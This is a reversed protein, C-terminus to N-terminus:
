GLFPVQRGLKRCPRNGEENRKKQCKAYSCPLYWVFLKRPLQLDM